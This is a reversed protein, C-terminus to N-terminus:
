KGPKAPLTSVFRIALGCYRELSEDDEMAEPEITAWGKMVKGTLDMPRVHPANLIEAAADVGVRVILTDRHIGLCMNGDLLYGFGGFMRTEQLGAIHTFRNAVVAELREALGPDFPM